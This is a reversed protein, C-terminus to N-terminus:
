NPRPKMQEDTSRLGKARGLFGNMQRIAVHGQNEVVKVFGDMDPDRRKAHSPKRHNVYGTGKKM